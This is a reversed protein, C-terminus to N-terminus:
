DVVASEYERWAQSKSIGRERAARKLADMRSLGGTQILANV